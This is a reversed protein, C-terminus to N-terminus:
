YWLKGPCLRLRAYLFALAALAALAALGSCGLEDLFDLDAAPLSHAPSLALVPVSCLHASAGGVFAPVLSESRPCSGFSDTLRDGHRGHCIM